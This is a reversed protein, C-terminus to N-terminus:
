QARRQLAQWIAAIHEAGVPPHFDSVESLLWDAICNVTVHDVGPLAEAIAAPVDRVPWGRLCDRLEEPTSPIM